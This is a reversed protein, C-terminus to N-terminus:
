PCSLRVDPSGEAGAKLLAYEKLFLSGLPQMYSGDVRSELCGASPAALTLSVDVYHSWNAM